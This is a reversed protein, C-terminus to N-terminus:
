DVVNSFADEIAVNVAITADATYTADPPTNFALMSEAAHLIAFNTSTQSVGLGSDNVTRNRGTEAKYGVAAATAIGNTFSGLTSSATCGPSCGTPSGHMTNTLSPTGVYNTKVNDYADYATVTPHFHVGATADSIGDWAFRFL